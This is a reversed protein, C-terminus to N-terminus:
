RLASLLEAAVSQQRPGVAGVAGPGEHPGPGTPDALGEEEQWAAAAPPKGGPLAAQARPRRRPSPPTCEHNAFSATREPVNSLRPSCCEDGVISPVARHCAHKTDSVVRTPFAWGNGLWGLFSSEESRMCTYCIWGM